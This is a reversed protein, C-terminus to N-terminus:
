AQSGEGFIWGYQAIEETWADDSTVRVLRYGADELQETLEADRQRRHPYEHFPGDVFVCTQGEDYYFDPRAFEPLTVQARDPLRYGGDYLFHLFRRELESECRALLDDRLEARTLAGRGLEATAAALALLTDRVSHRDLLEHERQNTYGLLCNYCAVECPEPLTPDNGRDNGELDFHCALLAQEAVRSLANPESVLRSLVGAGGEAAEYFLIATPNDNSPLLEVAVENNEVQFVAEIGRRLAYQLSILTSTRHELPGALAFILANRRDEVFPVIREFRELQETAEPADGTNVPDADRRSWYGKEPDLLFGYVHKDKRRSWGLNIRWLTATPAYTARALTEGEATYAAPLYDSGNQTEAYRFATMVDYGFRLREEEDSTIRAVRRTSVNQMRFLNSFWRASGDLLAHCQECRDATASADVHGYGCQACIKASLTLSGTEPARPPIIVKNIQYRSGEYYIVNQPGFESIALFRARSVFEDRGQRRVRGPLYAALPLRPFNYGPLFGASAFYRYSYFDNNVHGEDGSLLSIQAEAEGRLKKATERDKASASMDGVIENQVVRQHQASRFLTRWRECAHDFQILVNGLVTELWAPGYWRAGSLEPELEDLIRRCRDLARQKAHENSLAHRVDPLLPLDNGADTLDLVDRLSKGLSQGTEALWIANFHSTILEENALDIKPPAVAGSVMDRPRQFFWQDHPSMSSCYTLVLAPQGSRGARGSRQAYNAPTPPVNRMNVANLDAIDVGLEMTPSCYLVALEGNRFAKERQEREDSPVQATHEAATLGKLTLATTQYLTKFFENVQIDAKTARAIRTPDHEVVGDGAIWRIAGAQLQYYPSQNQKSGYTGVQELQGGIALVAFLDSALEEFGATKLPERKWTTARRLYKGLASTASVTVEATRARPDRTGVRVMPASEMEDAEDLGWPPVLYQFSNTKIAEQRIPDLFETKIALERRFFDLVVQCAAERQQPTATALVDHRDQWVDEVACLESLALYRVKLLGTQELNPANVRWGRRLDRYLRYGIVGRLAEETRSKALFQADPSSAYEQPSLALADTVRRAIHEASIGDPGSDAVAAHLAGRLLGIQVFDNLHGSQLSADQRNDTFSLLKRAKEDVGDTAKLARVISMSLVTTATSRGETALEALKGFDAQRGAYNVGCALCFRFPAVIFWAPVSEPTADNSLTGDARVYVLEPVYKRSSSKISLTGNKKLERWDDPLTGEEDTPDWALEPDLYLFGSRTGADDSSSVDSVDRPELPKGDIRDVVFYEQGCERCFALPYLRKSRESGPVFVQGSMALYRQEPEISSYVADGRSVFQHLRFAFVKRGTIPDDINYGALLVAKLQTECIEIPVGTQHSLKAAAEHVTVPIRRKLRGFDDRELGFAGEAWAAVPDGSFEEYSSLSAYDRASLLRQQLEESTPAPRRIASRLTEGVVHEPLVLSGFLKSALRAVEIQQEEPTGQGALTASTGICQLHPGALRERVRRVLMAVDAGQRGRYTHLEDLVLFELNGSAGNIIRKDNEDVRTMLLELMVYNTLIIDPPASSILDREEKSEQGTYRAFTVPENGAGYGERLFRNLEDRQSNCLANMPYVVIAKIGKGSGAKLVRDIIPVFYSLSKGSGTGTTLVYSNRAQAIEIADRQHRHLILPAGIPDTAKNRRFIRGCESDLLGQNVLDDISGAPEFSPNLQVLPNPWLRGEDLRQEVFDKIDPDSIRLFSRVYSAYDGIVQDRFQFVDMINSEVLYAL